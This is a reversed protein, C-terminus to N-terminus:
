KNQRSMLPTPDVPLGDCRMEFHLHPGSSNGSMGGLAIVDGPSVQTGKAVLYKKLHAYRTQIGNPHAVIVYYGYGGKQYGVSEVKGGLAARVSDGMHLAIDLGKHMRKKDPRLGFRSTIIGHIPVFFDNVVYDPLTGSYCEQSGPTNDKGWFGSNYYDNEGYASSFIDFVGIPIEETVSDVSQGDNGQTHRVSDGSGIIRVLSTFLDTVDTTDAVNVVQQSVPAGILVSAGAIILATIIGLRRM